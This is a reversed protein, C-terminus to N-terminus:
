LGINKLSPNRAKLMELVHKIPSNQAFNWAQKFMVQVGQPANTMPGEAGMNKGAIDMFERIGGSSENGGLINFDAVNVPEKIRHAFSVKQKVKSGM